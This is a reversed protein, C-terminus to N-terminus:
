TAGTVAIMQEHQSHVPLFKARRPSWNELRELGFPNRARTAVTERQGMLGHESVLGEAREQRLCGGSQVVASRVAGIAIQKAAFLTEPKLLANKQSRSRVHVIDSAGKFFGIFVPDREALPRFRDCLNADLRRTGAPTPGFRGASLPM